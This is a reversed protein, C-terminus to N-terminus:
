PHPEPSRADGGHLRLIHQHRRHLEELKARQEPTLFPVIEDHSQAMTETVRKETENRIQDLRASLSDLIPAVKGEQESTLRLERKLHERMRNHFHEDHRLFFMHRAHWAGAFLGTAVGAFFVFVLVLALWWKLAKM